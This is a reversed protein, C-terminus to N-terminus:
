LRRHSRLREALRAPARTEHQEPPHDDPRGPRDQKRAASWREHDSLVEPVWHVQPEEHVIVISNEESAFNLERDAPRHVSVPKKLM